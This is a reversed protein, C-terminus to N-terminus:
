RRERLVTASLQEGRIEVPDFGSDLAAESGLITRVEPLLRNLRIVTVPFQLSKPNQVKSTLILRKEIAQRIAAQRATDSAAWEFEEALLFTDRFWKLAVFDYGPTSEARDLSRIVDALPDSASRSKKVDTSPIPEFRIRIEGSEPTWSDAPANKRKKRGDKGLLQVQARFGAPVLSKYESSRLKSLDEELRSEIEQITRKM